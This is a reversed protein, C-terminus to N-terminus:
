KSIVFLFFIMLQNINCEIDVVLNFYLMLGLQQLLIILQLLIFFHCFFFFQCIPMSNCLHYSSGFLFDIIFLFPFQYFHSSYICAMMHLLTSRVNFHKSARFLPLVMKCPDQNQSWFVESCDLHVSFLGRAKWSFWFM